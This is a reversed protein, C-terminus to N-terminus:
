GSLSKDDEVAKSDTNAYYDNLLEQIAHIQEDRVTKDYEDSWDLGTMSKFRNQKFEKGLPLCIGNEIEGRMNKNYTDVYLNTASICRELYDESLNKIAM